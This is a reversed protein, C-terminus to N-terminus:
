ILEINLVGVIRLKETNKTERVKHKLFSPFIVLDDEEAPIEWSQFYGSNEQCIDMKRSIGGLTIDYIAATSPNNFCTSKHTEKDFQIYHTATFFSNPSDIHDHLAMNQGNKMATINTFNARWNNVINERFPFQDMFKKITNQYEQMLDPIKPMTFDANYWDGYCHHLNSSEDWKNRVPAKSYNEEIEAILKTKDYSCPDIKTKWVPVSFLDIREM